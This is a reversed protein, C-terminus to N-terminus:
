KRTFQIDAMRMDLRGKMFKTLDPDDKLYIEIPTVIKSDALQTIMAEYPRYVDRKSGAQTNQKLDYKL